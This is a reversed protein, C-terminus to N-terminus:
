EPEPQASIVGVEVVDTSFGRITKPIIDEKPLEEEPVKHTVLVTIVPTGHREGYGVGVVNAKKMLAPGARKMAEEITM